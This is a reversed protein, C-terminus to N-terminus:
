LENDIFVGLFKYSKSLTITHDQITIPPCPSPITKRKSQPDPVRARSVGLLATKDLEFEVHHERSWELAGGECEMIERLKENANGFDKGRAVYATDDMFGLGPKDKEGNALGILDTNYFLYAIPSMPCGQDLGIPIQFTLSIFDDFSLTTIRGDLHRKYWETYEKPIGRTRMNHILREIVVSPFAAKVDLFLLSM